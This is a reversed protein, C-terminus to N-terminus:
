FPAARRRAYWRGRPTPWRGCPPHPPRASQFAPRDFTSKTATTFTDSQLPIDVTLDEGSSVELVHVKRRKFDRLLATLELDSVALDSRSHVLIVMLRFTYGHWTIRRGAMKLLWWIGKRAFSDAPANELYECITRRVQYRRDECAAFESIPTWQAVYRPDEKKRCGRAAPISLYAVADASPESEKDMSHMRRM